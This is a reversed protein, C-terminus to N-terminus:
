GKKKKKKDKNKGELKELKEPSDKTSYLIVILKMNLSVSEGHANECMNCPLRLAIRSALDATPFPPCRAVCHPALLARPTLLALLLPPHLLVLTVSCTPFSRLLLYINAHQITHRHFSLHFWHM